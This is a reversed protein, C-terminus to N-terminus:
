NIPPAFRLNHANLNEIYEQMRKREHYKVFEIVKSDIELLGLGPPTEDPRIIFLNVGREKAKAQAEKIRHHLYRENLRLRFNLEVLDRLPHPEVCVSKRPVNLFMFVTDCGFSFAEEVPLPNALDADLYRYGDLEVMEFLPYLAMSARIRSFFLDHKAKRSRADDSGDMALDSDKNSFVVTAGDEYREALIHWVISSALVKRLDIQEGLRTLLPFPDLFAKMRRFEFYKDMEDFAEQIEPAQMLRRFSKHQSAFTDMLRFVFSVTRVAVRFPMRLGFSTVLPLFKSARRFDHLISGSPGWGQTPQPVVGLLRALKERLFPHVEYVAEPSTIYDEWIRITKEAGVVGPNEVFGLANCTGASSSIIHTPILGANVLEAAAVAQTLAKCGGGCFVFMINGYKNSQHDSM